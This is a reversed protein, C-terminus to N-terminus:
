YLLRVQNALALDANRESAAALHRQAAAVEARLSAVEAALPPSSSSADGSGLQHLTTTPETCVQSSSSGSSGNSSGNSNGGSSFRHIDSTEYCKSGNFHQQQKELAELESLSWPSWSSSSAEAPLPRPLGTETSILASACSAEWEQSEMLMAAGVGSFDGNCNLHNSAISSSSSSTSAVTDFSAAKEAPPEVSFSSSPSSNSLAPSDLMAWDDSLSAGGGGAAAAGTAAGTTGASGGSAWTSGWTGEDQHHFQDYSGLSSSSLARRPPATSDAGEVKGAAAAGSAAGPAANAAQPWHLNDLVSAQVRPDRAVRLAVDAMFAACRDHSVSGGSASLAGRSHSSLSSHSSRRQAINSRSNNNNSSLASNTNSSASLEQPALHQPMTEPPVAAKEPETSPAALVATAAATTETGKQDIAIPAVRELAVSEEDDPQADPAKKEPAAAQESAGSKSTGRYSKRDSSERGHGGGRSYGKGGRGTVQAAAAELHNASVQCLLVPALLRVWGSM